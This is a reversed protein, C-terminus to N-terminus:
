MQICRNIRQIGFTSLTTPSSWHGGTKWKHENEIDKHELTAIPTSVRNIGVTGLVVSVQQVLPPSAPAHPVLVLGEVKDPLHTHIHHHAHTAHHYM